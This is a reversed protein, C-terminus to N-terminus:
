NIRRQWVVFDNIVNVKQYYRRVFTELEPFPPGQYDIVILPPKQSDLLALIFEHKQLDQIHYAVTYPGVPLRRSLAYLHPENGWVFIKDQPDTSQNVFEALRYVRPTQQGFYEFYAEKDKQGTAFQLFNRYYSLTPYAWFRYRIVALALFLLLLGTWLRVRKEKKFFLVGLALSFPPAIQLLYHPYPRGSLTAGFLGFVFWIAIFVVPPTLKGKQTLLGLSIGAALLSRILFDSKWLSTLSFTSSGARWSFLYGVTQKFCATLFPELAGRAWFFLVTLLIPSLYGVLLFLEKRTLNLAKGKDSFFILFFMLAAFDFLSPVKLLFGLSLILGTALFGWPLSLKRKTKASLLDFILYFGLTIPLLIFIESNAINGEILRTTTLIALVITATRCVREDQPFLKQCLRSFLFLTALASGLLFFRFWFLTGGGAAALLYLLPPKNDFIDRYLLLGKNVAQGLVLYIGEDGYSYPEFLSPLRLLFVVILLVALWSRSFFAIIKKADM